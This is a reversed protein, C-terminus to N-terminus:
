IQNKLSFFTIKPRKKQKKRGANPWPQRPWGCDRSYQSMIEVDIADNWNQGVVNHSGKKDVWVTEHNIAEM